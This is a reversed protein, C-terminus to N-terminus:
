VLPLIQLCMDNTFLSRHTSILSQKSRKLEFPSTPNKSACLPMGHLRQKRLMPYNANVGDTEILSSPMEFFTVWVEGQIACFKCCIGLILNWWLRNKLL